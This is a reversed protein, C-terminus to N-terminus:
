PMAATKWQSDDYAPQRYEAKDGRQFLAERVEIDQASLTSVSCFMCVILLLLSHKM